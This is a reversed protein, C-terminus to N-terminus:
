KWLLIEISPPVFLRSRAIARRVVNFRAENVTVERPFFSTEASIIPKSSGLDLLRRKWSPHTAYSDMGEHIVLSCAPFLPLGNKRFVSWYWRIAWSDIHYLM